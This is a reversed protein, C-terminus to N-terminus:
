RWIDDFEVTDSATDNILAAHRLGTRAGDVYSVARGSGRESALARAM